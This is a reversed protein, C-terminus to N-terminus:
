LFGGRMEPGYCVYQQECVAGAARATGVRAAAATPAGDGGADLWGVDSLEVGGGSPTPDRKRGHTRDARADGGSSPAHAVTCRWVRVHRRVETDNLQRELRELKSPTSEASVHGAVVTLRGDLRWQACLVHEPTSVGEM